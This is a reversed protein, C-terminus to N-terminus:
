RYMTLKSKRIVQVKCEHTSALEGETTPPSVRSLARAELHYFGVQAGIWTFISSKITHEQLGLVSPASFSSEQPKSALWDSRIPSSWDLSLGQRLSPPSM